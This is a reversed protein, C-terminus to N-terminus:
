AARRGRDCWPCWSGGSTRPLRWPTRFCPSIASTRSSSCGRAPSPGALRETDEHRIVEDNAGDAIVVPLQIASLQSAAFRPESQWMSALGAVLRGWERPRPSLSMYEAQARQVFRSFVPTRSGGAKVGDTGSNAGFAFLGSMREPHTMALQLGTIAGDSWGVISAKGIKLFDLLAVVDNAFARYGFIASVLPSRGHGRTDMVTM